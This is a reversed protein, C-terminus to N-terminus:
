RAGVFVLGPQRLLAYKEPEGFMLDVAHLWDSEDAHALGAAELLWSPPVRALRQVRARQCLSFLEHIGIRSVMLFGLADLVGRLGQARIPELDSSGLTLAEEFAPIRERELPARVTYTMLEPAFTATPGRGVLRQANFRYSGDLATGLVVVYGAREPPGAEPVLLHAVSDCLGEELIGPLTSWDAGLLYHVLEHAMTARLLEDSASEPLEMWRRAHVTYTAGSWHENKLAGVLRVDVRRADCGPVVRPVRPALDDLIRVVREIRAPSTGSVTGCAGSASAPLEPPAATRCSAILACCLFLSSRLIPM